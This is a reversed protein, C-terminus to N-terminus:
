LYYYLRPYDEHTQTMPYIASEGRLAMILYGFTSMPSLIVDDLLSMVFIDHVAHSAQIVDYKQKVDIYEQMVRWHSDFHQQQIYIRLTDISPTMSSIFITTDNPYNSFEELCKMENDRGAVRVQMGTMQINTTTVCC